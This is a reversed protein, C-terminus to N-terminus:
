RSSPEGKGTTRMDWLEWEAFPQKGRSRDGRRVTVLRRLHPNRQRPGLDMSVTRGTARAFRELFQVSPMVRGREARSIAGQSTGMAAAVEAQTMRAARRSRELARGIDRPDM